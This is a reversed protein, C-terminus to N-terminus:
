QNPDSLESPAVLDQGPGRVHRIFIVEGIASFLIRYPRGRRTKFILQRIEPDGYGNEPALPCAAASDALTALMQELKLSWTLAGQPSRSAMWAIIGDIDRKARNTLEVRATM